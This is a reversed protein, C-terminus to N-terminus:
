AGRWRRNEILGQVSSKGIHLSGLQEGEKDAIGSYATSSSRNGFFDGGSSSGNDSGSPRYSLGNSFCIPSSVCTGGSGQISFLRITASLNIDDERPDLFAYATTLKQSVKCYHGAVMGDVQSLV